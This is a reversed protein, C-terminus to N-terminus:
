IAPSFFSWETANGAVTVDLLATLFDPMSVYGDLMGTSASGWAEIWDGVRFRM